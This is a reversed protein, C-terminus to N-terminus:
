GSLKAVHGRRVANDTSHAITIPQAGAADGVLAGAGVLLGAAGAAAGVVAGAAALGVSAGL